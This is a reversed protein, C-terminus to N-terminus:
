GRAAELIGDLASDMRAVVAPWTYNRLALDRGSQGLALRAAPDGMVHLCSAALSTSDDGLLLHRGPECAIGECGLSTSVVAKGMAFAELIKLRTGGGFRLPTVVVEARRVYPRVDDVTGTVEVGQAPDHLALVEPRPARGVITLSCDPRERRILPFVESVFWVMADANPLWDMSGVFVMAGPRIEEEFGPSFYTEDVGNEVVAVNARGATMDGIAAMDEESVAMALDSRSYARAEFRRMNWAHLALAAKRPKSTEADRLREAIQCEVNHADISVCPGSGRRPLGGLEGALHIHEIHVLSPKQAVLERFRASFQPVRYKVVSAPLGLLSAYLFMGASLPRNLAPNDVNVVRSVGLDALAGQWAPAMSSDSFTLVDVDFRHAFGALLHWTRIKAGTDLPFPPRASVFLVKQKKM